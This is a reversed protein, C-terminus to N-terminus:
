IEYDYNTTMVDNYEKKVVEKRFSDLEDEKGRLRRFEETDKIDGKILFRLGNIYGAFLGEIILVRTDNENFLKLEDDIRDWDIENVGIVGTAKRVRDRDKAPVKYLRDMNVIHSSVGLKYLQRALFWAIESKGTGSCGGICIIGEYNNSLKNELFIDFIKKAKQEHEPLFIFIDKHM